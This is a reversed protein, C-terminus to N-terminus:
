NRLLGRGDINGCAGRWRIFNADGRWAHLALYAKLKRLSLTWAAARSWPRIGHVDLVRVWTKNTGYAYRALYNRSLREAPILHELRLQPLYAVDWDDALVSMVMDNDEGSSLDLGKRGLSGRITEGWLRM